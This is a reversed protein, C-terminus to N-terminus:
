GKGEKPLCIHESLSVQAIAPMMSSHSVRGDM